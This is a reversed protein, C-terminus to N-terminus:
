FPWVDRQAVCRRGARGTGHSTFLNFLHCIIDASFIKVGTHDALEQAGREVKFDLALIVAFHSHYELMVSAKIVDKKVVPGIRIGLYPIKSDM